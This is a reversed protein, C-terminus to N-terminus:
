RNGAADARVEVAAFIDSGEDGRVGTAAEVVTAIAHAVNLGLGRRYEEVALIADVAAGLGAVGIQRFGSTTVVDIGGQGTIVGAALGAVSRPREDDNVVGLEAFRGQAVHEQVVAKQQKVLAAPWAIPREPLLGKRNAVKQDAIRWLCQQGVVGEFAVLM